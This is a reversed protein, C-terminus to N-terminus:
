FAGVSTQQRTPKLCVHCFLYAVSNRQRPREKKIGCIESTQLYAGGPERQQENSTTRTHTRCCRINHGSRKRATSQARSTKETRSTRTTGKRRIRKKRQLSEISQKVVVTFCLPNRAIRSGYRPLFIYNPVM